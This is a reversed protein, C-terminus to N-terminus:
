DLAGGGTKPRDIIPDMDDGNTNWFSGETSTTEVTPETTEPLDLNADTVTACGAAFLLAFSFSLAKITTSKLSKM